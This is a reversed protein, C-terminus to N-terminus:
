KLTTMKNKEIVWSRAENLAKYPFLGIDSKTFHAAIIEALNGIASDTVLAVRNIMKHHENVFRLHATMAGFSEWGPFSESHIILGKLQGNKEIWPDVISIASKFDEETLAGDPEFM